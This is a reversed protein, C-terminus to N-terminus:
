DPAEEYAFRDRVTFFRTGGGILVFLTFFTAVIVALVKFVVPDRWLLWTLFFGFGGVFIIAVINVGDVHRRARRDENYALESALRNITRDVNDRGEGKPLRQRAESM